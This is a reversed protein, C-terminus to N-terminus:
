SSYATKRASISNEAKNIFHFREWKIVLYVNEMALPLVLAFVHKDVVFFWMDVWSLQIEALLVKVM